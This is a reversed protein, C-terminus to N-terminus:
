PTADFVGEHPHCDCACVRADAEGDDNDWIATCAWHQGAACLVSTLILLGRPPKARPKEGKDRM